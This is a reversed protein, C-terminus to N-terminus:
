HSPDHSPRSKPQKAENEALGRAHKARHLLDAKYGPREERAAMEEFRKAIDLYEDAKQQSPKTAM